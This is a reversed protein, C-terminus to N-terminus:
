WSPAATPTWTQALAPSFEPAPTSVLRVVRAFVPASAAAQQRSAFWGVTVGVSGFALVAAALAWTPTRRGSPTEVLVSREAISSPSLADEIDARADAIDRVRRRVDKEFCRELLRRIVPPTAAPLPGLDPERELIAAILDSTTEGRFARRGTLMEYLVCGFSWIDTRQDLLRGRAQEPSM